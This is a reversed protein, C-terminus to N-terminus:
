TNTKTQAAATRAAGVVPGVVTGVLRVAGGVARATGVVGQAARASGVVLDTAGSQKLKDSVVGAAEGTKAAAGSEEWKRSVNSAFDRAGTTTSSKLREKTPMNAWFGGLAARFDPKQGDQEEDITSVVWPSDSSLFDEISGDTGWKTMAISGAQVFSAVVASNLYVSKGAFLAERESDKREGM